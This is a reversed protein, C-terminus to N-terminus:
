GGLMEYIDLLADDQQANISEQEAQSEFLAIATEDTQALAEELAGLRDLPSPEPEPEPEPPRKTPTIGVLVGEEIQLDCWGYTAWVAAELHVPVEIYGDEWVRAAGDRSQINRSGDERANIEIITM